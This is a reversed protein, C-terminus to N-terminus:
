FWALGLKRSQKTKQYIPLKPNITLRMSDIADLLQQFHLRSFLIEALISEQIRGFFYKDVTKNKLTVASFHWQVFVARKLM